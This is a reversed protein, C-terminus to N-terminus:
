EESGIQLDGLLLARPDIRETHINGSAKKKLSCNSPERASVDGGPTNKSLNPVM